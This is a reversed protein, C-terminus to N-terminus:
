ERVYIITEDDSSIYLKDGKIIYNVTDSGGKELIITIKSDTASWVFYEKGYKDIEGDKDTAWQFGSKDSKFEVHLVEYEFDTDEVWKGILQTEYNNDDDDSSCATFLMMPLMAMLFLIKKM